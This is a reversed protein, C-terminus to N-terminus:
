RDHNAISPALEGKYGYGNTSIKGSKHMTHEVSTTSGHMSAVKVNERNAYHSALNLKKSFQGEAVNWLLGLSHLSAKPDRKSPPDLPEIDEMDSVRKLKKMHIFGDEM